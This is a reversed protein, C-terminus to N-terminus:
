IRSYTGLRRNCVPCLHDVDKCSPCCFPLLCCGFFGGLICILAVLLWTLLGSEYSVNTLVERQCNTCYFRSPGPGLTNAAYVITTPQQIVPPPVCGCAVLAKGVDCSLLPVSPSICGHTSVM